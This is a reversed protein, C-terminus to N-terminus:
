ELEQFSVNKLMYTSLPFEDDALFVHPLIKNCYLLQAAAPINIFELSLLLGFHAIEGCEETPFYVRGKKGVDAYTFEYNANCAAMLIISHAGIFTKEAIRM